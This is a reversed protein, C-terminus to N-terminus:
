LIPTKTPPKEKSNRKRYLKYYVEALIKSLDELGGM